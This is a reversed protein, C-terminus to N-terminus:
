SKWKPPTNKDWYIDGIQHHEQFQDNSLHYHFNFWYGDKPRNDRRVDFRAIDENTREDYLKFIKEGSESNSSIGYYEVDEKGADILISQLVEEMNPLIKAEVQPAIQGLIKPGLKNKMEEKARNTLLNVLYEDVDLEEVLLFNEGSFFDLGNDSALQSKEEERTNSFILDNNKAEAEVNSYLDPTFAGLTLLTILFASIRRLYLKMEM